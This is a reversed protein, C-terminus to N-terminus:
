VEWPHDNGTVENFLYRRHLVKMFALDEFQLESMSVCGPNFGIANLGRSYSEADQQNLAPMISLLWEQIESLSAEDVATNTTYQTQQQTDNGNSREGVNEGVVSGRNNTDPISSSDLWGSIANNISSTTSGFKNQSVGTNIVDTTPSSQTSLQSLGVGALISSLDGVSQSISSDDDDSNDYANVGLIAFDGDETLGYSPDNYLRSSRSSIQVPRRPTFFALPLLSSSSVRMTSKLTVLKKLLFLLLRANSCFSTTIGVHFPEDEARQSRSRSSARVLNM